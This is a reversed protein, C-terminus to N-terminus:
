SRNGDVDRGGILAKIHGTKYDIIVSASQPQVIGDPDRFFYSNNIILRGDEDIRYFSSNSDLYEKSIILEKNEGVSFEGEPIVISGVTHSVLNKNDDIRYYDAIDIHKPYITIKNSKIKLNGNDMVEYEGDTFVLNFDDDFLNEQKYYVINKKDDIINGAKNLRM